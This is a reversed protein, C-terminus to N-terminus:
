NQKEKEAQFLSEHSDSTCELEIESYLQKFFQLMQRQYSIGWHLTKIQYKAIDLLQEPIEIQATELEVEAYQQVTLEFQYVIEQAVILRQQSSLHGFFFLRTTSESELRNPAIESLMWKLFHQRGSDTVAYLKKQRGNDIKNELAVHGNSELKKLAAQISGLSASYFPSVKKQLAQKLDYQTLQRIFLFGLIVFEM